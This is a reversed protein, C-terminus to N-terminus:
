APTPALERAIATDRRRRINSVTFGFGVLVWLLAQSARDYQRATCTGTNYSDLLYALANTNPPPPAPVTGPLAGLQIHWPCIRPSFGSLSFQGKSGDLSAATAAKYHIPWVLAIAALCFAIAAIAPRLAFRRGIGRM